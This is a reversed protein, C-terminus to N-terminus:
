AVERQPNGSPSKNKNPSQIPLQDRLKQVTTRQYALMLRVLAMVAFYALAIWLVLDWRSLGDM